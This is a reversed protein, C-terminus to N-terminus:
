GARAARPSLADFALARGSEDSLPAPRVLFVADPGTPPTFVIIDGRQPPHFLYGRGGDNGTIARLIDGFVSDGASAYVFRNVLVHQGDAMTPDMSRGDVRFSQTSIQLVVFILVATIATESIERILKM